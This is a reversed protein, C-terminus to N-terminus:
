PVQHPGENSTREDTERRTPELRMEIRKLRENMEKFVNNRDNGRDIIRKNVKGVRDLFLGFLVVGLFGISMLIFVMHTSPIDLGLYGKITNATNISLLIYNMATMIVVGTTWLYFGEVYLEWFRDTLNM